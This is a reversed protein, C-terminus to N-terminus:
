VRRRARVFVRAHRPRVSLVFWRLRWASVVGARARHEREAKMLWGFYAGPRRVLETAAIALSPGPTGAAASPTALGAALAAPSAASDREPARMRAVDADAQEIAVQRVYALGTDTLRLGCDEVPRTRQDTRVAIARRWMDVDTQDKAVLTYVRGTATSVTLAFAFRHGPATSTAGTAAGLAAGVVSFSGYALHPSGADEPGKYYTVTTGSAAMETRKNAEDGSCASRAARRTVCRLVFWRTRWNRHTGGEKTLWGATERERVGGSPAAPKAGTHGPRFYRVV